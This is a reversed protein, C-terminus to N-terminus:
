SWFADWAYLDDFHERGDIVRGDKFEFVLRCGLFCSARPLAISMKALVPPGGHVRPTAFTTRLVDSPEM